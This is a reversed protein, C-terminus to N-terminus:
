LYGDKDANKIRWRCTPRAINFHQALNELPKTPQHVLM